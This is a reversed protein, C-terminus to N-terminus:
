VESPTYKGLSKNAYDTGKKLDSIFWKLIDLTVVADAEADHPNTNLCGTYESLYALTRNKLREKRAREWIKVIEILDLYQYSFPYLVGSSNYAELMFNVDFGVNQGAPIIEEEFKNFQAVFLNLNEMAAHITYFDPNWTRPHYGNIELARKSAREIRQPRIKFATRGLERLGSDCMIAAVQIIEHYDPKLGTTETDVICFLM